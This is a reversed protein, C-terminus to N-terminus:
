CSARDEPNERVRLETQKLTNYCMDCLVIIKDEGEDEAHILNRLPALHRMLDDDTLSSVVGCCNWDKMEVLEHGFEKMIANASRELNKASTKLTCGPYYLLQM